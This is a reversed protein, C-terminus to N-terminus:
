EARVCVHTAQFPEANEGRQIWVVITYVGPQKRSLEIPARFSGPNPFEIEGASGDEYVRNAPLKPYLSTPNEPLSYPQLIQLFRRDPPFPLPEYHVDIGQISYRPDLVRGSFLFRSQPRRMMPYPDISVYRAVYIECLRVHFGSVAVGFGAHTNQPALMAKRHGDDPPVEAHMSRHMRMPAEAIEQSNMPSYYDTASDNESTADTGGAFAYRHYPKRGDLGWHSLFNNEAMEIAHRQAIDCALRDLKLVTFGDQTREQNVLALLQARFAALEGDAPNGDRSAIRPRSGVQFALMSLTAHKLFGRRNIEIGM